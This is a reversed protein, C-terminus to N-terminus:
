SRSRCAQPAALVRRLRKGMPRVLPLQHRQHSRGATRHTSDLAMRGAAQGPCPRGARPGRRLPRHLRAQSSSRRDFLRADEVDVSRRVVARLCQVGGAGRRKESGQLAFARRCNKEKGDVRPIRAAGRAAASFGVTSLRCPECMALFGPRAPCGSPALDAPSASRSASWATSGRSSKLCPFSPWRSGSKRTSSGPSPLFIGSPVDPRHLRCKRM